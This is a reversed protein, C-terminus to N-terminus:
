RAKLSLKAAIRKPAKHSATISPLKGAKPKTLKVEAGLNLKGAFKILKSVSFKSVRGNLLNSVDPQHIALLTGLEQQAFGREQIYQLLDRYIEAKVKIELAESASFGLEDLVSGHTLHPTKDKNFDKSKM